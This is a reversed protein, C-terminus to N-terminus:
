LSERVVVGVTAAINSSVVAGVGVVAAAWLLWLLLLPVCLRSDAVHVGSCVGDGVVACVISSVTSVGLQGADVPHQWQARQKSLGAVQVVYALCCDMACCLMVSAGHRATVGEGLWM